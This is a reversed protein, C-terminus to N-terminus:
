SDHKAQNTAQREQAKSSFDMRNLCALMKLLDNDSRMVGKSRAMTM